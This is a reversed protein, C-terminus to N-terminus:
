QVSRSYENGYGHNARVTSRMINHDDSLLGPLRTSQPEAVM